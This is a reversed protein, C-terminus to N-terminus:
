DVSSISFLPFNGAKFLEMRWFHEQEIQIGLYM